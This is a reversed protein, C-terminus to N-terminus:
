RNAIIALRRTAIGVTATQDANRFGAGAGANSFLFLADGRLVLKQDLSAQTMQPAADGIICRKTKPVPREFRKRPPFHSRRM